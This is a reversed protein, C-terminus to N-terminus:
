QGVDTKVGMMRHVIEKLHPEIYIENLAKTYAEIANGIFRMNEASLKVEYEEKDPENWRWDYTQKILDHATESDALEEPFLGMDLTALHFGSPHAYGDNLMKVSEGFTIM